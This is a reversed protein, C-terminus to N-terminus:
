WPRCLMDLSKSQNITFEIFDRCVEYFKKKDYDVQFTKREVRKKLRDVVFMKLARQIHLLNRTLQYIAHSDGEKLLELAEEDWLDRPPSLDGEVEPSFVVEDSDSVPITSSDPLVEDACEGTKGQRAVTPGGQAPQQTAVQTPGESTIPTGESSTASIGDSNNLGQTGKSDGNETQGNPNDGNHHTRSTTSYEHNFSEQLAVRTAKGSHTPSLMGNQNEETTGNDMKIGAHPATALLPTSNHSIQASSQGTLKDTSKSRDPGSYRRLSPDRPKIKCARIRRLAHRVESEDNFIKIKMNQEKSFEETKMIEKVIEDDGRLTVTRLRNGAGRLQHGADDSNAEARGRSRSRSRAMNQRRAAAPSAAQLLPPNAISLRRETRPRFTGNSDLTSTHARAANNFADSVSTDHLKFKPIESPTTAVMIESDKASTVTDNALSLIAYIIDHPKSANFASLNSVLAELSLLPELKKGKDSKRFLKSITQVLRTAGLAEVDGLFDGQNNYKKDGRFLEAIEEARSSFLAVADALHSWPIRQEGCHVFARQAFAIEQVVWRRSFWDRRMLASLAAWDATHAESVLRDLQQLDLVSKIHELAPGSTDNEEGLWICVNTAESYIKGMMPIQHSKENKNKQDISIADVWFVKTEVPDRLYRLASALNKTIKLQKSKNNELLGITPSKDDLPDGWSYSLAEYEEKDRVILSGLLTDSREGPHLNLLRITSEKQATGDTQSQGRKLPSYVYHQQQQQRETAM